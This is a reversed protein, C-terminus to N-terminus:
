QSWSFQLFALNHCISNSAKGEGKHCLLKRICQLNIIYCAWRHCIRRNKDIALGYEQCVARDNEYLFKQIKGISDQVQKTKLIVAWGQM